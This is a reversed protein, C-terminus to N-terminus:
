PNQTKVRINIKAISILKRNQLSSKKKAFANFYPVIFINGFRGSKNVHDFLLYFHPMQALYGLHGIDNFSVRQSLHWCFRVPAVICM